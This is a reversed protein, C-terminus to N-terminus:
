LLGPILRVKDEIFGFYSFSILTYAYRESGTLTVSDCIVSYDIDNDFVTFDYSYQGAGIESMEAGDIVLANTDLRYIDVTPSLGTKPIASQTFVALVKM